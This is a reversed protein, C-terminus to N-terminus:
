SEDSPVRSTLCALLGVVTGVAVGWLAGVITQRFGLGTGAAADEIGHAMGVLCGMVGFPLTAYVVKLWRELQTRPEAFTIGFGFGILGGVIAGEVVDRLNELSPSVSGKGSGLFAGVFALGITWLGIRKTRESDM